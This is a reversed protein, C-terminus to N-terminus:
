DVFCIITRLRLIQLTHLIIKAGNVGKIRNTDDLQHPTLRTHVKHFQTDRTIASQIALKNHDLLYAIRRLSIYPDQDIIRKIEPGLGVVLMRGPSLVYSAIMEGEDFKRRWRQITDLEPARNPYTEQMIIFVEKANKGQRFLFDAVSRYRTWNIRHLQIYEQM